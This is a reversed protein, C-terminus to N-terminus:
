GNLIEEKWISDFESNNDTTAANPNNLKLIIVSGTTQEKTQVGTNDYEPYNLVYAEDVESKTDLSTFDKYVMLTAGNDAVSRITQTNEANEFIGRVTELADDTVLKLILSGNKSEAGGVAIEYEKQNSLVIKTM